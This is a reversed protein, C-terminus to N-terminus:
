KESFQKILHYLKRRIRSLRSGVTAPISDVVYAIEQLSMNENYFLSLLTQDAVPLLTMAKELFLINLEDQRPAVYMDEYAAELENDDLLVLNMRSKRLHNVSENYAIRRLWTALSAKKFDFTSIKTFAKVFVDQYVEEADEHRGVMRSVLRFVMPGQDNLLRLQAAPKGQRLDDLFKNTEKEM